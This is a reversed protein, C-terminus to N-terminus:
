KQWWRAVDRASTWKEWNAEFDARAHAAGDEFRKEDEASLAM